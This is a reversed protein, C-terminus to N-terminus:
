GVQLTAQPYLPLFMSRPAAIPPHKGEAPLRNKIVTSTDTSKYRSGWVQKDIAADARQSEIENIM